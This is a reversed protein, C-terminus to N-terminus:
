GEIIIGEPPLEVLGLLLWELAAGEYERLNLDVPGKNQREVYTAFAGCVSPNDRLVRGGWVLVALYKMLDTSFYQHKRIATPLSPELERRVQEVQEQLWCHGLVWEWVVERDAIVFLRPNWFHLFKSVAVLSPGDKNQKIEAATTLANWLEELMASTPEAFDHLRQNRLSEPLSDLIRRVKKSTPAVFNRSRFVQWNNRLEDYLWSFDDDSGSEFANRARKWCEMHGKISWDRESGYANAHSEFAADIATESLRMTM